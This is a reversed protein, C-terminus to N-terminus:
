TAATLPRYRFSSDLVHSYYEDDPMPMDVEKENPVGNVSTCLRSSLGPDAVVM